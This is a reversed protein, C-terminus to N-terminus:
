ARETPASTSESHTDTLFLDVLLARDSAYALVETLSHSALMEALDGNSTEKADGM